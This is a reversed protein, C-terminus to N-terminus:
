DDLEFPFHRSNLQMKPRPIERSTPAQIQLKSFNIAFAECSGRQELFYSATIAHCDIRLSITKM